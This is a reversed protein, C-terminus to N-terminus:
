RGAITFPEGLLWKRITERDRTLDGQVRYNSAALVRADRPSEDVVTWPESGSAHVFRFSEGGTVLFGVHTDLGVIRIGPGLEELEDAYTDYPVGVRLSWERRPVFTGLINQSPQQALRYRNVRFGADRLVTSVFYGCAIGKDGPQEATGHFDWPTGLWCEMLRPLARRLFASSEGLVREREPESDAEAYRVSAEARWDAVAARVQKYRRADPEARLKGLVLIAEDEKGVRASVMSLWGGIPKRASWGVAAVALVLGFGIIRRM